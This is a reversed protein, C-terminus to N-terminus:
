TCLLQNSDLCRDFKSGLSTIGMLQGIVIVVGECDKRVILRTVREARNSLQLGSGSGVAGSVGSGTAAKSGCASCAL